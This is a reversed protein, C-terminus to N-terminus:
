EYSELLVEIEEELFAVYDWIAEWDGEPIELYYYGDRDVLL